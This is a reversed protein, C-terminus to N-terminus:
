YFLMGPLPWVPWLVGEVVGKEVAGTCPVAVPVTRKERRCSHVMSDVSRCRRISWSNPIGGLIAKELM